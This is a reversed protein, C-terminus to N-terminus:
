VAIKKNKDIVKNEELAIKIQAYWHPFIKFLQYEIEEIINLRYKAIGFLHNYGITGAHKSQEKLNRGRILLDPKINRQSLLSALNYQEIVICPEFGKRKLPLYEERNAQYIEELAYYAKIFDDKLEMSNFGMIGCSFSYGLDSDWHPLDKAYKSFFAVQKQYHYRYGGEKRELLCNDFKFDIKKTIFVDTDLHVFPKTQKGIAHIKSKMWLDKDKEVHIKSVECPLMHLFKYATEDVYLEIDKYWLHSYLVSLATMYITEKLRNGQYWRNNSLPFASLSYIIKPENM